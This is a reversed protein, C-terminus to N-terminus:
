GCARPGGAGPRATTTRPRRRRTPHAPPSTPEVGTRGPDPGRHRRRGRRRHGGRQGGTSRSPAAEAVRGNSAAALRGRLCRPRRRASRAGSQVPHADCALRPSPSPIALSRPRHRTRGHRAVTVEVDPGSAEYGVIVAGNAAAIRQPRPTAHVPPSGRGCRRRRRGGGAGSRCRRRGCWSGTGVRATGAGGRLSGQGRSRMPGGGDYPSWSRSWSPPTARRAGPRREPM